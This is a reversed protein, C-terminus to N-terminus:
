QLEFAINLNNIASSNGQSLQSLPIDDEDNSSSAWYASTAAFTEKDLANLVKGVWNCYKTM